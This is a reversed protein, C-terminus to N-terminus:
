PIMRLVRFVPSRRRAYVVVASIGCMLTRHLERFAAPQEDVPVHYITHLSVSADFTDLRFPLQTIDALVYFGHEGLERRAEELTRM